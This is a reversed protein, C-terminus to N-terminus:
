VIMVIQCDDKLSVKVRKLLEFPLNNSMEADLSM